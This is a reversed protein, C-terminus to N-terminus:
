TSFYYTFNSVTVQIVATLHIKGKSKSDGEYKLIFTLTNKLNIFTLNNTLLSYMYWCYIFGVFNVKLTKNLTIKILLILLNCKYYLHINYTTINRKTAAAIRQKSRTPHPDRDAKQYGTSMSLFVPKWVERWNKDNPLIECWWEPHCRFGVFCLLKQNLDEIRLFKM